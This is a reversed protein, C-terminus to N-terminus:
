TSEDEKRREELEKIQQIISLAADVDEDCVAWHFDYGLNKVQSDYPMGKRNGKVVCKGTYYTGVACTNWMASKYRLEAWEKSSPSKVILAEEWDFKKPPAGKYAFMRWVLFGILFLVLCILIVLM